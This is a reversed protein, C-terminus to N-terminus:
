YKAVSVGSETQVIVFKEIGIQVLSVRQSPFNISRLTKSELEKIPYDNSYKSNSSSTFLFVISVLLLIKRM